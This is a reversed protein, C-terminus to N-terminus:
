KLLDVIERELQASGPGGAKSNIIRGHKDVLVYHPIGSIQFKEALIKYEVDKLLYNEGNMDLEAIVAKWTKEPSSVGLYVFVVDKDKLKERLIKSNPMEDRCPGCWTAWFDIYVVKGPYKSVIKYFVSDSETVPLARFNANVPLEYDRIKGLATYYKHLIKDKLYNTAVLEKFDEIYPEIEELQRAEITSNVLNSLLVDRLFGNSHVAYYDILPKYTKYSLKQNLFEENNENKFMKRLFLMDFISLNKSTDKLSIKELKQLDKKPLETNQLLIAAVQQSSMNLPASLEAKSIFYKGYEELYSGYNSSVSAEPNDLPFRDFFDFYDAPLVNDKNTMLHVWTYRLLEDACGYELEALAWKKFTESVSRGQIFSEYIEKEDKLRNYLFAKYADASSDKQAASLKQFWAYNDPRHKIIEQKYALIDENVNASSGQFTKSSDPNDADFNVILDDGPSVFITILGRYELYIDQPQDKPFVIKFTGDSNIKGRYTLQDAFALDNVIVQVSNAKDLYKNFNKIRGSITVDSQAQLSASLLLFVCLITYKM